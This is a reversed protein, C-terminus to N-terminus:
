RVFRRTTLDFRYRQGSGSVTLTLVDGTVSRVTFMGAPGAPPTRVGAVVPAAPSSPDASETYVFLGARTPSAAGLARNVPVGGAQVVEWQGDVPGNWLNTGLFRSANFPGGATLPLIGATMAAPADAATGAAPSDAASEREVGGPAASPPTSPAVLPRSAAAQRLRDESELRSAKTAPWGKAAVVGPQSGGPLSLARVSALVAPVGAGLAALCAVGIAAVIAVRHKTAARVRTALNRM